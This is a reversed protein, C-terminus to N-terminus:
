QESARYAAEFEAPTLYGLASHIRKTQYVDCLFQGIHSRADEFNTHDCLSVHEEKITRILRKAFGNEKPCGVAAM